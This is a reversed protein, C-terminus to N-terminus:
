FTPMLGTVTREYRGLSWLAPRRRHDSSVWWCLWIYPSGARSSPPAAELLVEGPQVQAAEPDGVVGVVPHDPQDPQDHAAAGALDLRDDHGRRVPVLADAALQQPVHGALRLLAVHGDSVMEGTTACRRRSGCGARRRSRRPRRSRASGPGPGGGARTAAPPDRAARAATGSRVPTGGQGGTSSRAHRGCAPHDARARGAPAPWAARMVGSQVSVTREGASSDGGRRIQQAEM